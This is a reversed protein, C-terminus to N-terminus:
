ELYSVFVAGAGFGGTRDGTAGIVLDPAGDGDLDGSVVGAGAADGNARGGLRADADDAAVAGAMPGYVVLAAGSGNVMGAAGTAGAILDDVGDGDLDEADVGSGVRDSGSGELVALGAGLSVTDTAPGGVVYAAGGARNAQSSGVIADDLGDGDLDGFALAEGCIEYASTGVLKGDAQALDFGADVPGHVVYVSGSDPGGTDDYGASILLDTVGDGNLDGNSEVYRGTESNPNEGVLEFDYASPLDVSGAAVPGLLIYVSGSYNGGTRQEGAGIILDAIGDGSVDAVDSGHGCEIASACSVQVAAESFALDRTIPGFFTVADSGSSDPAGLQLDLAGDGNVDGVGISRGGEYNSREGALFVGAAGLPGEGSLPGFAVYAGGRYGGAWMAGVVLDNVGDGDLDGVKMHHGADDSADGFGIADADNLDFLGEIRDRPEDPACGEDVGGSCDDDQGNCLEVAGPSVAADDPACDGGVQVWSAEPVCTAVGSEDGGYGDGDPDPYWVVDCRRDPPESGLGGKTCGALVVLGVIALSARRM